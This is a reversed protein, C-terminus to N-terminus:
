PAPVPVFSRVARRRNADSTVRALTEGDVELSVQIPRVDSADRPSTASQGLLRELMGQRERHEVVAPMASSSPVPGANAVATPTAGAFDPAGGFSFPTAAFRRLGEPLLQQPLQRVIGLVFSVLDEFFGRVTAAICGFFEVIPTFLTRAAEVVRDFLGVVSDAFGGLGTGFSEFLGGLWELAARVANPLCPRAREGPVEVLQWGLRRRKAGDGEVVEM